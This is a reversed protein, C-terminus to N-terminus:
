VSSMGLGSGPKGLGPGTFCGLEAASSTVLWADTADNSFCYVGSRPGTPMAIDRGHPLM